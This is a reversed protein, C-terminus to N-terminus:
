PNVHFTIKQLNVQDTTKDNDVQYYLTSTCDAAGSTWAPSSLTFNKGLNWDASFGKTEEYLRSGKQTCIVRVYSIQATTHAKFTITDGMNVTKNGNKDTVMVPGSLESPYNTEFTAGTKSKPTSKHGFIAWGILFGVLCLIVVSIAIQLYSLNIKKGLM